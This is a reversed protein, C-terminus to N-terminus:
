RSAGTSIAGKGSGKCTECTKLKLGTDKAWSEFEKGTGLCNHCNGTEREYHGIEARGEAATVIVKTGEGEWKPKGKRPGREFVGVPVSGIVICDDGVMEWCYAKWGAPLGMKRRAAADWHDTHM